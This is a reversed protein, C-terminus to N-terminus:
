KLLFGPEFDWLSRFGEKFAARARSLVSEAAKTSINLHKAIEDVSYGRIYKLELASSYNLPLYSLTVRVFNRLEDAGRQSEPNEAQTGISELAARIEPIDEFPVSLAEHGGRRRFKDALENRCIQCLWTFLSAEGRYSGIKRVVKCMTQQVVEEALDADGNTRTMTFRFLRPFYEKFFADFAEGDGDAVRKALQRDAKLQSFEINL